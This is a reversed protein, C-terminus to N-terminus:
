LIVCECEGPNVHDYLVNLISWEVVIIPVDCTPKM